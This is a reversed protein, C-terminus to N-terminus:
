DEEIGVEEVKSSDFVGKKSRKAQTPVFTDATRKRMTQVDQTSDEAAWELVLRRGYLHTSMQMAEFANKADTKSMFDVFGFGRHASGEGMKLPLRVSRLPGFATFLERVESEKAQFPINRVMLKSGTQKTTATNATQTRNAPAAAQSHQDSKLMRDSKKLEVQNNDIQTFQMTKLAKEASARAKFQIFGYGLSVREKPDKPSKKRAVQVM